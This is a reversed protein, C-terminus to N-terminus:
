IPKTGSKALRREVAAFVDSVPIDMCANDTPCNRKHCGSCAVGNTVVEDRNSWPGNRIASTPGFIGVVPTRLACALHFPGTDGGILLRAKKLLPIM